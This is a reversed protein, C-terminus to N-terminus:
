LLAYLKNVLKSQEKNLKPPQYQFLQEKLLAMVVLKPLVYDDEYKEYDICNPTSLITQLDERMYEGIDDILNMVKFYLAESTIM